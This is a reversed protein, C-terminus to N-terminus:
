DDDSISGAEDGKNKADDRNANSVKPEIPTSPPVSRGDSLLLVVLTDQYHFLLDELRSVSLAHSREQDARIAGVLLALARKERALRQGQDELGTGSQRIWSRLDDFGELIEDNEEDSLTGNRETGLFRVCRGVATATSTWHLLTAVGRQEELTYERKLRDNFLQVFWAPSAGLERWTIEKAPAREFTIGAISIGVVKQTSTRGTPDQIARRRWADQELAAVLNGLAHSIRAHDALLAGLQDPEEGLAEGVRRLRAIAAVLDLDRLETGFGSGRGLEVAFARRIERRHAIGFRAEAAELDANRARVEDGLSRLSAMEPPDNALSDPLAFREELAQMRPVVEDFNGQKELAILAELEIRLAEESGTLIEVEFARRAEGYRSDGIHDAALPLSRLGALSRGPDPLTGEVPPWESKTRWAILSTALVDAWQTELQNRRAVQARLKELEERADGSVKPAQSNALIFEELAAIREAPPLDRPIDNLAFLADAEIIRLRQEEDFEAPRPEPDTFFSDDELGSGGKNAPDDPDAGNDSGNSALPDDKPLGVGTMLPYAIAVGLAAVAVGTFLLGRRPSRTTQLAGSPFAEGHDAALRLKDLEGRLAEASAFREDPAKALLKSILADLDQPLGEVYERLPIPEETLLARLIDRTTDGEFPTHGSLLRYATAGLSYLDSRHDVRDARAQEPSMFHPTGVIKRGDGALEAGEAETSTALGLDAIKVTGAGTLMLNAPKIDRHVIARSEAYMLGAAADALVDLVQRWPLPGAAGLRQELSGGPMFEMSLYHRGDAEGVDHVVVVNPHSLAAAARAESQFREIFVKDAAYKPALIKLAVPRNLSQQLALYVKGAGGRGLLRDIRYGGIREPMDKPRRAKDVVEIPLAENLPIAKDPTQAQMPEHEEVSSGGAELVEFRRSGALLKDGPELRASSVRRGNLHTGYQSGLDKVAWGGSKTRGIAFHADEIGQGPVVFGARAASQGVVLMGSEPLDCSLEEDGLLVLRLVSM